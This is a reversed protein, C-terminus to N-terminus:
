KASQNAVQAIVTDIHERVEKYGASKSLENMDVKRQADTIHNQESDHLFRMFGKGAESRFFFDQYAKAVEVPNM